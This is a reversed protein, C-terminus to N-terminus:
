IQKNCMKKNFTFRNETHFSKNTSAATYLHTQSCVSKLTLRQKETYVKLM